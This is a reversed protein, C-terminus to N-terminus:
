SSPTSRHILWAAMIAGLTAGLMDAVIDYVDDDRGPVYSQHIEDTIGYLGAIVAGLWAGWFLSRMIRSAPLCILFGMVGYAGFHLVKDTPLIPLKLPITTPRSSAYYILAMYAIPLAIELALPLRWWALPQSTTTSSTSESM